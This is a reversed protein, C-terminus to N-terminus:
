SRADQVSKADEQYFSKFYEIHICYQRKKQKHFIELQLNDLYIWDFVLITKFIYSLKIKCYM